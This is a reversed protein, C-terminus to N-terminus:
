EKAPTGSNQILAGVVPASILLVGVLAEKWGTNNNLAAAIALIVAPVYGALIGRATDGLSLNKM